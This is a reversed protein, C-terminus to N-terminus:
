GPTQMLGFINKLDQFINQYFRELYKAKLGSEEKLKIFANDIQNFAEEVYVIMMVGAMITTAIYIIELITLGFM